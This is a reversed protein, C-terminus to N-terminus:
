PQGATGAIKAVLCEEHVADGREDAKCTELACPKRCIACVPHGLRSGKREMLDNLEHILVRYKLPNKEKAIESSLAFLRDREEQTM